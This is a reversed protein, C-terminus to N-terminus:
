GLKPTIALLDEKGAVYLGIGLEFKAEGKTNAELKLNPLPPWLKAEAEVLSPVLLTAVVLLALYAPHARQM